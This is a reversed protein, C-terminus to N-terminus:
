KQCRDCTGGQYDDPVDEGFYERIVKMRCDTSAAYYVMRDIRRKRTEVYDGFGMQEESLSDFLDSDLLLQILM